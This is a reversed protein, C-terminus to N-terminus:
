SRESRHRAPEPATSPSPLANPPISYWITRSHCRCCSVSANVTKPSIVSGADLAQRPTVNTVDRGKLTVTGSEVRRLGTIAEVLETQGNGQVGALALIEGARVDLSVGNVAILGRDDHVVLDRIELV